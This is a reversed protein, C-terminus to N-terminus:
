ANRVVVYPIEETERIEVEVGFVSKIKESTIIEKGGLAEIRGDKLLMFVDSYRLALNIDHLVFVTILSLDKTARRILSAIEIQNKLDLYSLPEDLLLVKPQQALARAIIVKQFEGGSIRMISKSKLKTLGMVEILHETIEIDKRSIIFNMHPKRGSLVAEFVTTNFIEGRQPVYGLIKAREKTEMRLLDKGDLYVTGKKPNLLSACVKLLTTKGSGNPGLISLLDGEKIKFTINELTPISNYSFTVDEIIIEM